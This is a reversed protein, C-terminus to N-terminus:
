KLEECLKKIKRGLEVITESKKLIHFEKNDGCEFHGLFNKYNAVKEELKKLETALSAELNPKSTKPHDQYYMILICGITVGIFTIFTGCCCKWGYNNDRLSVEGTPPPM